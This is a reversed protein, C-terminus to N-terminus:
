LWAGHNKLDNSLKFTILPFPLLFKQSALICIRSYGLHCVEQKEKM